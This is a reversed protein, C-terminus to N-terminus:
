FGMSKVVKTLVYRQAPSNPTEPQTMELYRGLLPDIYKKKMKYRDSLGLHEAIEALSKPEKCYIAIRELIQFDLGLEKGVGQWSRASEKGDPLSYHSFHSFQGQGVPPPQGVPVVAKDSFFTTGRQGLHGVTGPTPCSPCHSM